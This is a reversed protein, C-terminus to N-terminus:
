RFLGGEEKSQFLYRFYDLGRHGSYKYAMINAYATTGIGVLWFLTDVWDSVQFNHIFMLVYVTFSVFLFKCSADRTSESRRIKSGQWVYKVRSTVGILLVLLAIIESLNVQM